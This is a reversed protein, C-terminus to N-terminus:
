SKRVDLEAPQGVERLLLRGLPSIEKHAGKISGDTDFQLTQGKSPTPVRERLLGLQVLRDEYSKRLAAKDHVEQPAGMTPPVRNFVASHREIHELRADRSVFGFSRLIVVEADNIEALLRLLTKRDLAAADEATLGNSLIQAIEELRERTTARAAQWMGDELLDLFQATSFKTRLYNPDLKGIRAELEEVLGILREVRQNPVTEDIVASVLPGLIPVSALVTKAVIKGVAVPLNTRPALDGDVM